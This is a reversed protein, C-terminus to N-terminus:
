EGRVNELETVVQRALDFMFSAKGPIAVTLGVIGHFRTGYTQPSVNAKGGPRKETKTCILMRPKRNRLGPFCQILQEALHAVEEPDPRDDEGGIVEKFGTGAAL